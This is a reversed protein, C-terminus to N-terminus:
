PYVLHLQDLRIRMATVTVGFLRALRRVRQEQMEGDVPLSMAFWAKRVEAVPMLLEAAFAKAEREYLGRQPESLGIQTGPATSAVLKHGLLVHGFEEALM